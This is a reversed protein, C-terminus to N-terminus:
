KLGLNSEMKVKGRRRCYQLGFEADCAGSVRTRDSRGGGTGRHTNIIYM